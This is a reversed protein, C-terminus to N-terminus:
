ILGSAAAAERSLAARSAGADIHDWPLIEDPSRKRLAYWAPDIGCRAFAEQWRGLNFSEEWGDYRAGARWAELVAEALRRDGRAFVAELSSMRFSHFDLEIFRSRVAEKLILRKRELAEGADMAEWQFPTHAKPIFANISATVDAWKGDIGKRAASVATVLDAIARVDEDTEGPLGIMFYLKVRRWGSRFSAACARMLREMDINKHMAKRLREAGAEPAFTLGSKKVKSILEPLGDLAEEIRLSPISISVAKGAFEANLAEITERIRSYDVSSLSLLSIEDHGTERYAARAIELVKEKSRERCPRYATTAQCFRCVHKCGRMIEIAIRDHVVGINPVIQRVPYFAADLDAVVRKRVVPPVGAEPTVSRITRDDNYAVAYLSPVYVGPILALKRLLAGRSGPARRGSSRYADVIEGVAEEGDGIVFADIFAAVPEPNLVAPGGAIVIPDADSRERAFLPIGGLDLMTLLNAYSLEHGISFGVIDFDALPRRSELSYLPIRNDRLVKEFDPWPAFARECLCDDRGNLIGYLIKIGLHSMGIEYVDPFALCVTVRGPTWDKRVANWEGGVYRGPKQVTLLLENLNATDIM